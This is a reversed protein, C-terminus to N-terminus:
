LNNKLCALLQSPRYPKFLYGLVGERICAELESNISCGTTVLVRVKPDLERLRLWCERGSIRPMVMDLVIM